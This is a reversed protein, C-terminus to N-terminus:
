FGVYLRRNTPVEVFPNTLAIPRVSVQVVRRRECRAFLQTKAISTFGGVAGICLAAAGLLAFRRPSPLPM